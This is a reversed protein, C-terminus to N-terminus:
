SLVVPSMRCDENKCIQGINFHYGIDIQESYFQKALINVISYNFHNWIPGSNKIIIEKNIIIKSLNIKYHKKFALLRKSTFDLVEVRNWIRSKKAQKKRFETAPGMLFVNITMKNLLDTCKNNLDIMITLWNDLM